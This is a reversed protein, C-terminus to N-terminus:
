EQTCRDTISRSRLLFTISGTIATRGFSIIRYLLAATVATAAPVGASTLGLALTAEVIGIGGPTLGLQGAGYGAVWTTIIAPWPAASGAAVISLAFAALTASMNLLSWITVAVADLRGIRTSAIIDIAGRVRDQARRWPRRTTRRMWAFGRDIAAEVGHRIAPTRLVSVLTTIPVIIVAIVLLAAIVPGPSRTTLAAAAGITRYALVLYIASMVLAWTVIAPLVGQRTFRRYSYAAAVAKGVLPISVSLAGGIYTTAVVSPLPLFRGSASLLRRQQRALSGISFVQAALALAVWGWNARTLTLGVQQLTTPRTAALFAIGIIVAASTALTTTRASIRHRAGLSGM